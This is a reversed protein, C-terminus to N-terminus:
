RRGGPHQVAGVSHRAPFRGLGDHGGVKGHVCPPGSGHHEKAPGSGSASHHSTSGEAGPENYTGAYRKDAKPNAQNEEWSLKSHEPTGWDYDKKTKGEPIHIEGPDQLDGYGLALNDYPYFTDPAGPTNWQGPGAPKYGPLTYRAPPTASTGYRDMCRDPAAAVAVGTGDPVPLPGATLVTVGLVVAAARLWFRSRARIAFHM